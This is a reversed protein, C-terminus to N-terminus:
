AFSKKAVEILGFLPSVVLSCPSQGRRTRFMWIKVHFTARRTEIRDFYKDPAPPGLSRRTSSGGLRDGIVVYSNTLPRPGKPWAAPPRSPACASRFLYLCKLESTTIMNAL